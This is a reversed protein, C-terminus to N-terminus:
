GINKLKRYEVKDGQERQMKKRRLTEGEVRQLLLGFQEVTEDSPEEPQYNRHWELRKEHKDREKKARERIEQRKPEAEEDVKRLIAAKLSDIIQNHFENVDKELYEWSKVHDGYRNEVVEIAVNRTKEALVPYLENLWDVVATSDERYPPDFFYVDDRVDVRPPSHQMLIEEVCRDIAAREELARVRLNIDRMLGPDRNYTRRELAAQQLEKLDELRDPMTNGDRWWLRWGFMKIDQYASYLYMGTLVVLVIGVLVVVNEPDGQIEGGNSMLDHYASM